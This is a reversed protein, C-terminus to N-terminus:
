GDQMYTVNNYLENGCSPNNHFKRWCFASVVLCLCVLVVIVCIGSFLLTRDNFIDPATSQSSSVLPASETCNQLELVTWPSGTYFEPFQCSANTELLRYECWLFTPHLHCDCLFPNDSLDLVKLSKLPSLVNMDLTTLQNDGLLLHVLRKQFRFIRKSSLSILRNNRLDLHMLNKLKSFLRYDLTELLNNNMYLSKLNTMQDFVDGELYVLSTNKLNVDSFKTYEPTYPRTKLAGLYINSCDLSFKLYRKCSYFSNGSASSV